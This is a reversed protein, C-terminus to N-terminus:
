RRNISDNIRTLIANWAGTASKGDVPKSALDQAIIRFTPQPWYKGGRGLIHCDHVCLQDLEQMLCGIQM